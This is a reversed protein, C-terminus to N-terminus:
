AVGYRRDIDTNVFDRLQALTYRRQEGFGHRYARLTGDRDWRRLTTVSYGLFRAAEGITMFEHTDM